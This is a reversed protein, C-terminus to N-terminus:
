ILLLLLNFGILLLWVWLWWHETLRQMLYMIVYLLPTAIIIGLAFGKVLDGIFLSSTVKNFGFKGEIKFTSYYSFPLMLIQLLLFYSLIIAVQASLQPLLSTFYTALYNIGGAFIMLATIVTSFVAESTSMHLKALTYAAAKQHESLSIYPAFAAPVMDSKTKIARAQRQNLYLKLLCDGCLCFLFFLGFNTIEM